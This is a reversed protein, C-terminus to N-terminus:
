LPLRLYISIMALTVMAGFNVALKEYRTAIRRCNKLRGVCREVVNRGRYAAADFPGERERRGDTLHENARMPIVARVRRRRLWDRIRDASYGKDAALVRPLRHRPAADRTANILPEFTPCENRNGTTIVCGIPLGNGDTALHLKTGTGGHSLGLAHDAPERPDATKKPPM